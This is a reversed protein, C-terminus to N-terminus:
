RRGGPQGRRARGRGSVVSRSVVSRFGLAPVPLKPLDSANWPLRARIPASRSLWSTALLPVTVVPSAADDTDISLVEYHEGQTAPSFSVTIDAFEGQALTTPGVLTASFAGTVDADFLRLPKACLNRVHVTRVNAGIGVQLDGFWSAEPVDVCTTEAAPAEPPEDPSSSTGPLCSSLLTLLLARTM